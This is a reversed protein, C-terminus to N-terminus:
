KLKAVFICSDYRRLLKSTYAFCQGLTRGLVEPFYKLSSVRACLSEPEFDLDGHSFLLSLGCKELLTLLSKRSHYHFHPPSTGVQYLQHLPGEVGISALLESIQYLIGSSLPVKIIVIKLTGRLQQVLDSLFSVQQTLPFHEIVDLLTLINPEFKFLDHPLEWKSTVTEGIQSARIGMEQLCKVSLPSTDVGMISEYNQNKLHSLFFGRGAGFDLIRPSKGGFQEIFQAIEMAQRQRTVSLSQLFGGQDYQHHYDVKEGLRSIEKHIAYRHGCHWCRTLLLRRTERDYDGLTSDCILCKKLTM